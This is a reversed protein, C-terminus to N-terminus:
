HTTGFICNEISKIGVDYVCMYAHIIDYLISFVASITVMDYLWYM